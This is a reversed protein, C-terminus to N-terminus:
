HFFRVKAMPYHKVDADTKLVLAEIKAMFEQGAPVLAATRGVAQDIRSGSPLPQM